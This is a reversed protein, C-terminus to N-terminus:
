LELGLGRTPGRSQLFLLGNVGDMKKTHYAEPTKCNNDYFERIRDIKVSKHNTKYRGGPAYQDRMSKVFHIDSEIADERDAIYQTSHKTTMLEWGFRIYQLPSLSNKIVTDRNKLSTQNISEGSAKSVINQGEAKEGTRGGFTSSSKARSHTKPAEPIQHSLPQQSRGSPDTQM